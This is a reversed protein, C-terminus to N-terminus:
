FYIERSQPKAPTKTTDLGAKILLAYNTREIEQIANLAKFYVEREAGKLKYPDFAKIPPKYSLVNKSQEQKFESQYDPNNKYQQTINEITAKADKYSIGTSSIKEELKAKAAKQTETVETKKIPNFAGLSSPVLRDFSISTKEAEKNIEEVEIGAKKALALNTNEIELMCAKNEKYETRAPEPLLNPNFEKVKTPQVYIMRTRNIADNQENSIEKEEYCNPYKELIESVKKKAEAYTVGTSSKKEDLEKRAERQEANLKNDNRGTLNAIVNEISKGGVILNNASEKVNKPTVQPKNKNDVCQKLIDLVNNQTANDSKQNVNEPVGQEESYGDWITWGDARANKAEEGTLKGDNATSDTGGVDYKSFDFGNIHTM